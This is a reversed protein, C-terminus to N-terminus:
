TTGTVVATATAKLIVGQLVDPIDPSFNSPPPLPDNVVKMMVALPTDASFPVRGTLMEYLVIGLAYIDVPPGIDAEGKAQEPAMYAPTGIGVGTQTMQEELSIMKAIGFDTLIAQGDGNLMINAPKIDRHM